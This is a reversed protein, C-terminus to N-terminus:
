DGAQEMAEIVQALVRASRGAHPRKSRSSVRVRASAARRLVGLRPWFLWVRLVVPTLGAEPQDAM